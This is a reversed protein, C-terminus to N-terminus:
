NESAPAQHLPLRSSVVNEKKLAEKIKNYAELNHPYLGLPDSM